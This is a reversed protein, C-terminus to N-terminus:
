HAGGRRHLEIECAALQAPTNIGMLENSDPALLAEVRHGKNRLVAVTDTLQIESQANESPSNMVEGLAERLLSEAFCYISSNIENIQLQEETADRHEVIALVENAAETATPSAGGTDLQRRRIIRGYGFPDAVRGTLLTAAPRTASPQTRPQQTEPSAPSSTQLALLERLTTARVLPADAPAVLVQAQPTIEPSIEKLATAVADGTGRQQHQHAFVLRTPDPAAQRAAESVAAASHGVVVIIRAPQLAAVAKIVYAILPQNSLVTLPKPTASQMRTGEGAALVVASLAENAAASAASNASVKM